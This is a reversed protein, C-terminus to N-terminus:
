DTIMVIQQIYKKEFLETIIFRAVDYKSIQFISSDSPSDITYTSTAPKDVIETPRVITWDLESKKLLDEQLGHDYFSAKLISDNMVMDKFSDPMYDWSDGAGQASLCILRKSKKNIMASIINSTGISMTNLDSNNFGLAIVVNDGENICKEVTKFDLVNGVIYTLNDISDKSQRTLVCVQNGQGILKNVILQGVDGTGGFVITKM